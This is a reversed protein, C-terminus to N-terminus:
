FLQVTNDIYTATVGSATLATTAPTFDNTDNEIVVWGIVAQNSKDPLPANRLDPVDGVNDYDASALWSYTVTPDDTGDSPLTAILAYIRYFGAKLVGAKVTVGAPYPAIVPANLLSPAQATTISGSMRGSAKFRFTNGYKVYATSADIALGPAFVCGNKTIDFQM